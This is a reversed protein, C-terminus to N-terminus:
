MDKYYFSMLVTLHKDKKIYINGHKEIKNEQKGAKESSFTLAFMKKQRM